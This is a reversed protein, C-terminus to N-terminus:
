LPVKTDESVPARTPYPRPAISVICMIGLAFGLGQNKRGRGPGGPPVLAGALRGQSARRPSVLNTPPARPVRRTCGWLPNWPESSRFGATEGQPRLLECGGSRPPTSARGPSPPCKVSKTALKHDLAFGLGQNKRGRGPGGPPVLAGALRGQSARRPSRLHREGWITKTTELLRTNAGM